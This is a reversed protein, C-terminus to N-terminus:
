LVFLISAQVPVTVGNAFEVDVTGNKVPGKVKGRQGAYPWTPDDAVAVTAGSKLDGLGLSMMEEITQATTLKGALHDQVTRDISEEINKKM